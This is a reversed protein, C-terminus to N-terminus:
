EPGPGKLAASPAPEVRLGPGAGGPTTPSSGRFIDALSLDIYWVLVFGVIVVPILLLGHLAIAYALAKSEGAGYLVLTQKAFYEYPGIGGQSALVSIALNAVATIMMYVHFGVTLGFAIGVIYYMLAELTWSVGSMVWAVALDLPSRLSKLGEFFSESLGTISPRLRAPALRFALELVRRRGRESLAVVALVVLVGGFLVAMIAAIDQFGVHLSWSGLRADFTGSAGAFFAIVVIFPVLTLGDFVRDVAITGLSAAKSVKEREGLVYARVLEGMRAPVLNNVMLGILVVPYLRITRPRSVPRLLYQWRITRVWISAFFVPLSALAIAYDAERFADAIERFDTKWLFLAVFILSIALGVWVRRNRLM